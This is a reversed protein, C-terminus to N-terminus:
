DDDDDGLSWNHDCDGCVFDGDGTEAVYRSKHCNPCQPGAQVPAQGLLTELRADILTLVGVLAARLAKLFATESM